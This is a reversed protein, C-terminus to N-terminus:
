LFFVHNRPDAPIVSAGVDANQLFGVHGAVAVVIVCCWSPHVPWTMWMDLVHRGLCVDGLQLFTLTGGVPLLVIDLGTQLFEMDWRAVPLM